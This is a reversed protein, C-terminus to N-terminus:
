PASREAKRALTPMEGCANTPVLATMPNMTSITRIVVYAMANRVAAVTLEKLRACHGNIAVPVPAPKGSDQAAFEIEM